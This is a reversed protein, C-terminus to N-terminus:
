PNDIRVNGNRFEIDTRQAKRGSSYAVSFRSALFRDGNRKGSVSATGRTKSVIDSLTSTRLTGSVHYNAGDIETVFNLNAVPLGLLSVSYDAHVQVPEAVAVSPQALVLGALVLAPVLMSRCRADGMQAMQGGSRCKLVDLIRCNKANLM